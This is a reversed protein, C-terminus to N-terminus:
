DSDADKTAEMPSKLLTNNEIGSANGHLKVMQYAEKSM